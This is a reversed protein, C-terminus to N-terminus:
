RASIISRNLGEADLAPRRPACQAADGSSLSAEGLRSLDALALRWLGSKLGRSFFAGEKRGTPIVRSLTPTALAARSSAREITPEAPLAEGGGVRGNARSGRARRWKWRDAVRM